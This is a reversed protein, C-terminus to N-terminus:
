SQGHRDLLLPMQDFRRLNVQGLPTFRTLEAAEVDHRDFHLGMCQPDLDNLVGKLGPTLHALRPGHQRVFPERLTLRHKRPEGATPGIDGPGPRFPEVLFVHLRMTAELLLFRIFVVTLAFFASIWRRQYRMSASPFTRPRMALWIAVMKRPLCLGM